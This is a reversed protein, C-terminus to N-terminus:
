RAQLFDLQSREGAVVSLKLTRLFRRNLTGTLVAFNPRRVVGDFLWHLRV